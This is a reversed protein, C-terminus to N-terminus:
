DKIEADFDLIVQDTTPLLEYALGASVQMAM